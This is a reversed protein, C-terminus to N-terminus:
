KPAPLPPLRLATGLAAALKAVADACANLDRVAPVVGAEAAGLIEGEFSRDLPVPLAALAALRDRLSPQTKPDLGLRATLFGKTGPGFNVDAHGFLRYLASVTAEEPKGFFPLDSPDGADALAAFEDRDRALERLLHLTPLKALKDDDAKDLKADRAAKRLALLHVRWAALSRRVAQAQEVSLRAGDPVILATNVGAKGGLYPDVAAPKKLAAEVAALGGFDPLEKEVAERRAKDKEKDKLGLAAFVAEPGTATEVGKPVPKKKNFLDGFQGSYALWGVVGAVAILLGVVVLLARGSRKRDPPPPPAAPAPRSVPAPPPPSKRADAPQLDIAPERRLDGFPHGDLGTPDPTPKM